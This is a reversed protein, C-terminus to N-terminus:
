MIGKQGTGENQCLTEEAASGDPKKEKESKSHAQGSKVSKTVSNKYSLYDEIKGSMMFQEWYTDRM